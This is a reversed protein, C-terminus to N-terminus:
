VMRSGTQTRWSPQPYLNHVLQVRPLWRTIVAWFSPGTMSRRQSRRNLWKFLLRCALYFYAKLSKMNGSVGYYQIHGRLHYKTYEMMIKGGEVRLNRLRQNLLKLKRRFRKGETKRGVVFRGRRSLSVFHTFGLFHFTEPRGVGDRHCDQGARSGFRLVRTKSPEVELDFAALRKELEQVFRRADEEDEFCAIFDDAYRVLYAKGRCSKKYRKEFWLDLVYHLYINALVPSVLGGQPTGEESASVVGDEMVGAKLFRRIVRLFCPDAIRHELFRMLHAHSVHDFFGKIDAEVVWQTGEWTVIEAVRRLADHASRDPRFGYSCNCFEPEWIAQLIQSLSDQVLRDEFSPIGLPRYRGEGKPLYVRRVPKPRYGLSRVRRSLEQIREELGERYDAKRVGDVGPAKREEQREFSSRLGEPDFLMGMLSTLREGRLERVKQTLRILRTTMAEGARHRGMDGQGTREFRCGKAGDANGSRTARIPAESKRCGGGEEESKVSTRPHAQKQASQRIERTVAYDGHSARCPRLGRPPGKCEGRVYLPSNGAPGYVGDAEGMVTKDPSLVKM